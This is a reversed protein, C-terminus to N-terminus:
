NTVDPPKNQLNRWASFALFLRSSFWKKLARAHRYDSFQNKQKQFAPLLTRRAGDELRRTSSLVSDWIWQVLRNRDVLEQQIFFNTRSWIVQSHFRPPPLHSCPLNMPNLNPDLGGGMCKFICSPKIRLQANMLVVVFFSSHSSDAAGIM